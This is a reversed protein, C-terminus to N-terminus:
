REFYPPNAVLYDRDDFATCHSTIRGNRWQVRFWKIGHLVVVELVTYNENWYHSHWIQGVKRPDDM